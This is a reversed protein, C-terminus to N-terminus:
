GWCFEIRYYGYPLRGEQVEVQLYEDIASFQIGWKSERHAELDRKVSELSTAYSKSLTDENLDVELTGGSEDGGVDSSDYSVDKGFYEKLVREMEEEDISHTTRVETSISLSM